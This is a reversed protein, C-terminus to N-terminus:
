RGGLVLTVGIVTDGGNIFVKQFGINAGLGSSTSQFTVGGGLM